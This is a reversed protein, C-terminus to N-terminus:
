GHAPWSPAPGLTAALRRGDETTAHEVTLQWAPSVAMKELDGVGFPPEARTAGGEIGSLGNAASIWVRVGDPRFAHVTISYLVGLGDGSVLTQLKTGDPLDHTTCSPEPAGPTRHGTYGTCSLDPNQEESPLIGLDLEAAGRGDEYVVRIQDSQATFAGLKGTPSVMEALIQLLAEPTVQDRPPAPAPGAPVPAETTTSAVTHRATDQGPDWRTAAGTAALAAVVASAGAIRLRRHLRRRRGLRMSGDVLEGVPPDIRLVAEDFLGELVPDREM